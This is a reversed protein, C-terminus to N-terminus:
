VWFELLLPRGGIWCGPRSGPEHGLRHFVRRCEKGIINFVERLQFCSAFTGEKAYNVYIAPFIVSLVLGYVVFLCSM